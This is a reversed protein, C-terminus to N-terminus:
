YLGDRNTDVVILITLNDLVYSLEVTIVGLIAAPIQNLFDILIDAENPASVLPNLLKSLDDLAESLRLIPSPQM